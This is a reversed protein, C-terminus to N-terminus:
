GGVRLHMTRWCCSPREAGAPICCGLSFHQMSPPLYSPSCVEQTDKENSVDLVHVSDETADALEVVVAGHQFSGADAGLLTRFSAMRGSVALGRVKQLLGELSKLNSTQSETDCRRVNATCAASSLLITLLCVGMDPIFRALVSGVSSKKMTAGAFSTITPKLARPLVGSM